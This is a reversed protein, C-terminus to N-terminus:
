ATATLSDPCRLDEILRTTIGFASVSAGPTVHGSPGPFEVWAIARFRFRGPCPGGADVPSVVFVSARRLSRFFLDNLDNLETNALVKQSRM